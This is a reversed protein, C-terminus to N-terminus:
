TTRMEVDRASCFSSIVGAALIVGLVATYSAWAWAGLMEVRLIGYYINSIALIAVIRGIWAHLPTWKKRLPTGPAPRFILATMQVAGLVTVAMGLDRHVAVEDRPTNWGGAAVFGLILGILGLLVGVSQFLRHFHFWWAISTSSSEEMAMGALRGESSEEKLSGKSDVSKLPISQGAKPRLIRAMLIGLPVLVGWGIAMLWMHALKIADDSTNGQMMMDQRIDLVRAGDESHRLAVGSPSTAGAAFILPLEKANDALLSRHRRRNVAANVGITFVGVMKKGSADVSATMNIINLRQERKVDSQEYGNMYVEYIEVGTKCNRCSQLIIASADLMSGPTSPFGLSVYGTKAAAMGITVTSPQSNSSDATNIVWALSFDKGIGAILACATFAPGIGWSSSDCTSLSDVPAPLPSSAGSLPSPPPSRLVESAPAPAPSEKVPAKTPAPAATVVPATTNEVTAGAGEAPSAYEKLNLFGFGYISDAATHAGLKGDPMMAGLAFLIDIPTASPAKLWNPIATSFSATLYGDVLEASSETLTCTGKAANVEPIEYSQLLYCDISAGSPSAADPWIIVSSSGIMGLGPQPFAIGAWGAATKARFAGKLVAGNATKELSSYVFFPAFADASLDICSSYSSAVGNVTLTESCAQLLKRTAAAGTTKLNQLHSSSDPLLLDGNLLVIELLGGTDGVSATAVIANRLHEQEATCARCRVAIDKIKAHGPVAVM